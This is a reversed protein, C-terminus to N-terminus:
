LVGLVIRDICAPCKGCPAASGFYCSWTNQPLVLSQTRFLKLVEDKGLNILPAHVTIQNNTCLQVLANCKNIFEITCDTYPVGIKILGIHIQVEEAPYLQQAVSVATMVFVLNRSEVEFQNETNATILSSQSTKFIDVLNKEILPINLKKCLEAVAAREQILNQQGYNFFLAVTDASINQLLLTTSDLGGSALIIKKM